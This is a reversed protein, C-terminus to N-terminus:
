TTARLKWPGGQSHTLSIRSLPPTDVRWFATPPADLVTITIARIVAPHTVAIQRGRGAAQATLWDQLRDLLDLISEGGHPAAAPDTLWATVAAPESAQIEELARGRWRGYDCDRLAPEVVADFGLAQATQVCAVEPGCWAATGAGAFAPAAAVARGAGQETLPEDAPFAARTVAATPAHCVLALRVTM